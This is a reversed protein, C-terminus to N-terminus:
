VGIRFPIRGGHLPLLTRNRCPIRLCPRGIRCTRYDTRWSVDTGGGRRMGRLIGKLICERFWLRVLWVCVAAALVSASFTNIGAAFSWIAGAAIAAAGYGAPLACVLAAMPVFGLGDGMQETAALYGGALFACLAKILRTKDDLVHGLRGATKRAAAALADILRRFIM